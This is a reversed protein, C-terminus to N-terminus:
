PSRKRYLRNQGGLESALPTQPDNPAASPIDELQAIDQMRGKLSVSLEQNADLYAKELIATHAFIREEIAVKRKLLDSLEKLGALVAQSRNRRDSVCLCCLRLEPKPCVQKAPDGFVVDIKKMIQASQKLFEARLENRRAERRKKTSNVMKQALRTVMETASDQSDEIDQTEDDEHGSNSLAKTPAM